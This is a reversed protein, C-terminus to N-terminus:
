AGEKKPPTVRPPIITVGSPATVASTVKRRVPLISRKQKYDSDNMRPYDRPEPEDLPLTWPTLIVPEDV